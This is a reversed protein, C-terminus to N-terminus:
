EKNFDEAYNITKKIRESEKKFYASKADRINCMANKLLYDHTKQVTVVDIKESPIQRELYYLFMKDGRRVNNPSLYDKIEPPINLSVGLVFGGLNFNITTNEHFSINKGICKVLNKTKM